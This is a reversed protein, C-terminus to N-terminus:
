NRNRISVGVRLSDRHIKGNMTGGLSSATATRANATIDIRAVTTTLAYNTIEAGTADYYRFRLGSAGTATYGTFPGAVYQYAPLDRDSYGLYWQNDLASQYLAYRVHRTIRVPAGVAVSARLPTSGDITLELAEAGAPAYPATCADATSTVTTVRHPAMANGAHGWVDDGSTAGPGEDWIFVSDGPTPTMVISTFQIPATSGDPLTASLTGAPALTVISGSIGCVISSAITSRVEISSDSMAVVDQGSSSINRLDAPLLSVAMQLQSRMTGVDSTARVFRQQSNFVSIVAAGVITLMTMTIMLEILTFGRRSRPSRSPRSM